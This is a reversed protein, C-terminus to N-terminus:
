PAMSANEGPSLVVAWGDDDPGSYVCLYYNDSIHILTTDRATDTEFEFPADSTIEGTDPDITLTNLWGDHTGNGSCREYVCVFSDSDKKALSTTKAAEINFELSPGSSLSWDAVDVELVTSWGDDGDGTYACLYHTSDIMALDPTLGNISDFEHASGNITQWHRPNGWDINMTGPYVGGFHTSNFGYVSNPTIQWTGPDVQLVTAWGDDNDGSYACLYHNSDIQALSPSKGNKSDYTFPIGRTVYWTAPYVTLVTAIGDDGSGSYSCLFHTSDIKALAPEKCKRYEFRSYYGSSITWSGIDVALVVATGTFGNSTYVCLYHTSDIQSITPTQANMWDFEFSPGKTVELTDADIILVTAWGDDKDGSYTCLFHTDDIKALAPDKCKKTDFEFPTYVMTGSTADGNTQIYASTTFTKDSGLSSSNALTAELKIFRILSVDTTPTNLDNLAYCTFQLKTVPGALEYQADIEGFQVYNNAAIDCRQILGASTEFEIYGTTDTHSSVAIIKKAQTLYRNIYDVLVRGNQIAESASQRSQWSNKANTFVPLIVSFLVSVISLAIVMELLTLAKHHTTYQKKRPMINVM